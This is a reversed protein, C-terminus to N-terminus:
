PAQKGSFTTYKKNFIGLNSGSSAVSLHDPENHDMTSKVHM